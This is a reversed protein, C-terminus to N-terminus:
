NPKPTHCKFCESKSSFVNSRCSPCTWDGPRKDGGRPAAPGGYGMGMGPMGGAGPPKPIHCRFCDARSAYNHSSCGPCNWDGPRFNSGGAGSMPQMQMPMGGYPAGPMGTPYGPMGYPAGPMVMGGAAAGYGPPMGGAAGGDMGSPKPTKCRV